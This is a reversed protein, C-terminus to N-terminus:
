KRPLQKNLQLGKNYFEFLLRRGRIYKRSQPPDIRFTKKYTKGAEVSGIDRVWIALIENDKKVRACLVVYLNDYDKDPEFEIWKLGGIQPSKFGSSFSHSIVKIKGPKPLDREVVRFSNGSVARTAGDKLIIVPRDNRAGIVPFYDRQYKVYIVESQNEAAGVSQGPVTLLATMVSVAFILVRIANNLLQISNLETKM